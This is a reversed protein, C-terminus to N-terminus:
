RRSKCIMLSVSFSSKGGSRKLSSCGGPLSSTRTASVGSSFGRHHAFQDDAIQQVARETSHNAYDSDGDFDGQNHEDDAECGTKEGFGGLANLSDARVNHDLWW